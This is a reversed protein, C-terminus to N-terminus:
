DHERIPLQQSFPEMHQSVTQCEIHQECLSLSGTWKKSPSLSEKYPWNCISYMPWQWQIPNFSFNTIFRKVDSYYRSAERDQAPCSGQQIEFVLPRRSSMSALNSFVKCKRLPHLATESQVLHFHLTTVDCVIRQGTLSCKANTVIFSLTKQITDMNLLCCPVREAHSGCPIYLDITISILM